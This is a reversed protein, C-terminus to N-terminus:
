PIGEVGYNPAAIFFRDRSLPQGTWREGLLEKGRDEM